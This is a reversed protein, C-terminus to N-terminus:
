PDRQYQYFMAVQCSEVYRRESSNTLTPEIMKYILGSTDRLLNTSGVERYTVDLLGRLFQGFLELQLISNRTQQHNIRRAVLGETIEARTTAVQAVNGNQHHVDHM